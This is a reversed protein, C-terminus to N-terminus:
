GSRASSKPKGGLRQDPPVRVDQCMPSNSAELLQRSQRAGSATSRGALVTARGVEFYHIPQTPVPRYHPYEQDHIRELDPSGLPMDGIEGQRQV